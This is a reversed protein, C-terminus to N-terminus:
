NSGGFYGELVGVVSSISGDPRVAWLGRCESDTPRSPDGISTDIPAKQGNAEHCENDFVNWMFAGALGTSQATKLLTKTRWIAESERQNEYLGYESILVRKSGLNLPDPAFHYITKLAQTMAAEMSNPDAGALTSDYSSYTVMDANVFPVVANVVRNFGNQAYDLVRNVEVANFVNVGSPNGADQRARTVGRQRAKLWIVMDNAMNWSISQSTDRSGDLGIWDGEWNKLIFTMGTNAYTHLLYTALNYFEDEEAQENGNEAFGAVHDSNAFTYTTLVVTKFGMGLVKKYPEAQILDSVYSPDEAPWLSSGKDPYTSRFHPTLYVFISASGLQRIREAGEQLYNEQTFGYNGSAHAIGAAFSNMFNARASIGSSSSSNSGSSANGHPANKMSAESGGGCALMSFLAALTLSFYVYAKYSM